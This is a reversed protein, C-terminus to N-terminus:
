SVPTSEVLRIPRRYSPYMDFEASPGLDTVSFQGTTGSVSSAVVSVSSNLTTNGVTATLDSVTVTLPSQGLPSQDFDAM